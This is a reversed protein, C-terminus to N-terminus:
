TDPLQKIFFCKYGCTLCICGGDQAARAAEAGHSKLVHRRLNFSRKTSYSCQKCQLDDRNSQEKKLVPSSEIKAEQKPQPVNSVPHLPRDTEFEVLEVDSVEETETSLELSGAVLNDALVLTPVVYKMLIKGESIWAMLVQRLYKGFRSPNALFVDSDINREGRKCSIIQSFFASRLCAVSLMVAAVVGCINGDRQLLYHLSCNSACRHGHRLQSHPHCEIIEMM